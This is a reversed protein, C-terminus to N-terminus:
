NNSKSSRNNGPVGMRAITGAKGKKEVERSAVVRYRPTLESTCVVSIPGRVVTGRQVLEDGVCIVSLSASNCWLVVGNRGMASVRVLVWSGASEGVARRTRSRRTEPFRVMYRGRDRM